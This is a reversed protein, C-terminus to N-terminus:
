ANQKFVLKTYKVFFLFIYIASIVSFFIVFSYVIFNGTFNFSVNELFLSVFIAILNNIFHMLTPVKLSGTRIYVIGLFFGLIFTFIVGELGNFFHFLGFLFSSFILGKIMGIKKKLKNLIIGRFIVEEVFPAIFLSGTMFGISSVMDNSKEIVGNHIFFVVTLVSFALHFIIFLVMYRLPIKNQPVSYIDSLKLNNIKLQKLFWFLFVFSFILTLINSDIKFGGFIKGMINIIIIIFIYLLLYSGVSRIKINELVNM